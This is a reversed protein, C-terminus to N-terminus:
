CLINCGGTVLVHRMFVNYRETGLNFLSIVDLIRAMSTVLLLGAIEADTSESYVQPDAAQHLEPPEKLLPLQVKGEMKSTAFMVHDKLDLPTTLVNNFTDDISDEDGDILISGDSTLISEFLFTKQDNRITFEEDRKRKM